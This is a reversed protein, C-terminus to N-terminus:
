SPQRGHTAGAPFAPGEALLVESHGDYVPRLRRSPLRRSDPSSACPPLAGSVTSMTPPTFVTALLDPSWAGQEISLDPRAGPVSSGWSRLLTACTDRTTRRLAPQARLGKDSLRAHNRASCVTSLTLFGSSPFHHRITCGAMLLVIGSETSRQLPASGWSLHIQM